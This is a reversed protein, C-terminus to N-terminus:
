RYRVLPSKAAAKFIKEAEKKNTIVKFHKQINEEEGEASVIQVPGSSIKQIVTVSPCVM